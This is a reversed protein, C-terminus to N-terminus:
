SRKAGKSTTVASYAAHAAENREIVKAARPSAATLRKVARETAITDARLDALTKGNYADRLKDVSAAIDDWKLASTERDAWDPRDDSELTAIVRDADALIMSVVATATPTELRELGAIQLPISRVVAAFTNRTRITQM